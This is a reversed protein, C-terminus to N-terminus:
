VQKRLPMVVQQMDGDSMMEPSRNKVEVVRTLRTCYERESNILQLSEARADQAVSTVESIAM